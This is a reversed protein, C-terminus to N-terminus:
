MGLVTLVITALVFIWFCGVLFRAEKFATTVLHGFAVALLGMAIARM